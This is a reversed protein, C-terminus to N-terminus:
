QQWESYLRVYRQSKTANCVLGFINGNKHYVLPLFDKYIPILDLFSVIITMILLWSVIIGLTLGLMIILSTVLFSDM